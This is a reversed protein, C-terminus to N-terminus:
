LSHGLKPVAPLSLIPSVPTSGGSDTPRGLRVRSCDRHLGDLVCTQLFLYSVIGEVFSITSLPFVFKYSWSPSLAEPLFGCTGVDDELQKICLVFPIKFLRWLPLSGWM